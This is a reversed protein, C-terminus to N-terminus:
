TPIDTLIYSLLSLTLPAGLTSIPHSDSERSEELIQTVRYVLMEKM